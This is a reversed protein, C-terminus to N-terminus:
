RPRRRRGGKGRHGALRNRRIEEALARRRLVRERAEAPPWADVYRMQIVLELERDDLDELGIWAAHSARRRAALRAAVAPGGPRWLWGGLVILLVGAVVAALLAGTM